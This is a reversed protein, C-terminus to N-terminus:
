RPITIDLGFGNKTQTLVYKGKYEAVTSAVIYMGLGTGIKNGESDYKSTTGYEFISYPNAQFVQSLGAGNDRYHIIFSDNETECDISILREAVKAHDFSEISNVVLNYVISDFDIEFLRREFPAQTAGVNVRVRKRLLIPMLIDVASQIVGYVDKKTRTRKDRTSQTTIVTIWAKLFEDNTKLDDIHRNILVNNGLELATKLTDVRTVLMANISKLDHVMSTTILGNTALARLLRIESALEEVEEEYYKLAKALKESDESTVGSEKQEQSKNSLIDDAIERADKKAQERQEKEETYLRITRAIYARDQEFVSIIARLMDCFVSFHINEIIGERSSKDLIATNEIRSIFVTGQGRANSVHWKGSKDSVAVPNIGKRADLHLWDFSNSDPDGYPRVVFHDRYIRIGAYEDLWKKRNPSVQKYYNVGRGDERTNTKMYIYSFDFPGIENAIRCFDADENHLLEPISFELTINPETFDKYRYPYVKFREHLFIERPLVNFDLENREIQIHVIEGDYNAKVRYDFDEGAFSEVLFGDSFMNKQAIIAFSEQEGPPILAGLSSIVKEISAGTWVDRLGCIDLLTGTNLQLAATTGRIKKISTLISQPIVDVFLADVYDFDAEIDELMKGPEEFESWDTKWRILSEEACKTYMTCTCGLRDLAFRGIGKEGAKIRKKSSRYNNQKNDTGIIMWYDEVTKKSMGTGNDLIYIHDNETDFCIYCYEADADYTNKILEIIAGDAKSVNERGILLTTRSSMKYNLKSM